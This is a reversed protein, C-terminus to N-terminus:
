TKMASPASTNLGEDATQRQLTDSMKPQALEELAEVLSIDAYETIKGGIAVSGDDAHYIQRTVSAFNLIARALVMIKEDTTRSM